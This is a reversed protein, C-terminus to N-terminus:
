WLDEHSRSSISTLYADLCCRKLTSVTSESDRVLFSGVSSDELLLESEARAIKGFYWAENKYDLQKHITKTIESKEAIIQQKGLIKVGPKAKAEVAKNVPLVNKQEVVIEAKQKKTLIVNQNEDKLTSSNTKDFPLVGPDRPQLSIYDPALKRVYNSPILGRKGEKNKAKWWQQYIESMGVIELIVNAEFSLEDDRQAKYVFQTLVHFHVEEEPFTGKESTLLEAPDAYPSSDDEEQNIIEEGNLLFQSGNDVEEVYNSPVFGIKANHQALWWNKDEKEIIKLLVGSTFSMEEDNQATYSYLTRVNSFENEAM